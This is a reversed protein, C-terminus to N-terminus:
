LRSYRACLGPVGIMCNSPSGGMIVPFVLRLYQALFVVWLARSYWGYISPISSMLVPIVILFSQSFRGHQGPISAMMDPFVPTDAMIVPFVVWLLWSYRRHQGPIGDLTVPFVQWLSWSYRRYPGPIGGMILTVVM